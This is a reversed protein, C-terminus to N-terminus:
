AGTQILFFRVYWVKRTHDELRFVMNEVEFHTRSNSQIRSKNKQEVYTSMFAMADLTYDRTERFCM